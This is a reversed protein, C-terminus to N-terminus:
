GTRGLAALLQARASALGFRAQVVQAAATTYTVQADNLEIINGVGTAFRQEALRLQERSSDLADQASGITAKAAKVALRATDVQLQVQLVELARQAEINQLGAEAQRVQAGTLGGQYIPWTLVVGAAWNPVLNTLNLGADTVSANASLSPGYGGRASSLTAEQAERQRAYTLLEPRNAVAKSVLTDLPQDEGDVTALEEDGVDYDTGGTIGAAQNLQAKATEYNNESQILQVRANACAAKQQALAIPPQTGVQVAGQVQALHKNQDEVTEQAVKVLEKSARAAFYAMRANVLLTLKTAQETARLSDVTLDAAKFKKYTQGFDYLLQTGTVGFNFVDYSTSFLSGGPAGGVGAVGPSPVFNGTKRTYSATGTVQPLLPSRVQDAQAEAVETNSRAVLMQPQQEAASREIASLTMVRRGGPAPAPEATGITAPAVPPPASGPGQGFARAPALTVVIWTGIWLGRRM